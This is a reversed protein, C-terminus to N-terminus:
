RLSIMQNITQLTSAQIPAGDLLILPSTDAGMSGLGHIRISSTSTLEGYRDYSQLGAVQGQLADVVNTSPRNRDERVEGSRCFWDGFRDRVRVM